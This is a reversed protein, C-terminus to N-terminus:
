NLGTLTLAFRHYGLKSFLTGGTLGCTITCTEIRQGAISRGYTQFVTTLKGTPWFTVHTVETNASVHEAIHCKVAFNRSYLLCAPLCNKMGSLM